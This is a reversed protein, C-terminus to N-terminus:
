LPTIDRMQNSDQGPALGSEIRVSPIMYYPQISEPSQIEVRKIILRLLAKAEGPSAQLLLAEIDNIIRKIDQSSVSHFHEVKMRRRLENKTAKLQELELAIKKLKTEVLRSLSGEKAFSKFYLDALNETRIIKQEVLRLEKQFDPAKVRSRENVKKVLKTVLNDNQLIERLQGLIAEEL